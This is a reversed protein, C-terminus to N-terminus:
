RREAKRHVTVSVPLGDQSWEIQWREENAYTAEPQQTVSFLKTPVIAERYHHSDSSAAFAKAATRHSWLWWAALGSVIIGLGLLVKETTTM